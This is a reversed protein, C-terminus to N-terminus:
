HISMQRLCISVYPCRCSFVNKKWLKYNLEATTQIEYKPGRVKLLQLINCTKRPLPHQELGCIRKPTWTGKFFITHKKMQSLLLTGAVSSVGLRPVSFLISSVWLSMAPDELPSKTSQVPFLLRWGIKLALCVASHWWSWCPCMCRACGRQKWKLVCYWM